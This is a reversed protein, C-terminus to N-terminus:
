KKVEMPLNQLVTIAQTIGCALTHFWAADDYDERERAADARNYLATRHVQLATLEESTM